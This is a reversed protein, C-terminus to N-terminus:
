KTTNNNRVEQGRSMIGNLFKLVGQTEQISQLTSSRESDLATLHLILSDLIGRYNQLEAEIDITAM